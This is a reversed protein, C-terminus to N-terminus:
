EAKRLKRPELVVALTSDADPQPYADLTARSKWDGAAMLDEVPHHKRETAWKRRYPHFDGGDLHEVDIEGAEYARTEARELMRVPHCRNWPKPRGRERARPAPFLPYDGLGRAKKLLAELAERVSGSIPVWRDTGTKDTERRKHIRGFPHSPARSLDIDRVRIQCLANLRWGTGEALDLFHGFLGQPDVADAHKRIAAYRDWTAVPRRPNKPSPPRFGEIPNRDLLPRGDPAYTMAWRFVSKLWQVDAQITRDRAPNALDRGEVRIKGARRMRVFRDMTAHDLDTVIRDPGLFAGWLDIRRADDRRGQSRERHITVHERYAAFVVRLTIEGFAVSEREALRDAAKERARQKGLERDTHGLSEYRRRGAVPDWWQLRLNGGPEREEVTVRYGYAGISWRWRKPKGM